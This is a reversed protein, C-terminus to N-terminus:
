SVDGDRFKCCGALDIKIKTERLYKGSNDPYSYCQSCHVQEHKNVKRQTVSYKWSRKSGVTYHSLGSARGTNRCLSRFNSSIVTNVLLQKKRGRRRLPRLEISFISSLLIQEGDM